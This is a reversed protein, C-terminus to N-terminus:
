IDEPDLFFSCVYVQRLSALAECECLFHASTEDEAGCISCIPSSTLGMLHLHRRLTNHGTLLSTIVRSQTKNFAMLKIKATPSPSSILEQAQRQTSGPDQWRAMHQNDMWHKIKRRINQGWPHSLDLLSKFLVTEQWSTSLKMEKCGLEELSGICGWLTSLLSIM